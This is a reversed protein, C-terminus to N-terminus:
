GEAVAGIPVGEAFITAVLIVVPDILPCTFDTGCTAIAHDLTDHLCLSGREEARITLPLMPSFVVADVSRPCEPFIHGSVRASKLKGRSFLIQDGSLCAVKLSFPANLCFFQRQVRWNVSLQLM